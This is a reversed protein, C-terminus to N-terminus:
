HWSPDHSKKTLGVTVGYQKIAQTLAVVRGQEIDRHSSVPEWTTTDTHEWHTCFEVSGDATVRHASVHTTNWVPEDESDESQDLWETM